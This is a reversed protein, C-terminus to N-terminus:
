RCQSPNKGLHRLFATSMRSSSVFGAERAITSVKVDTTSLMQQAHAVRLREIEEAMSRGVHEHFLRYLSRLSVGASKAIAKAQLNERFHEHIHRLAAAVAPNEIMLIDTSRRVVLGRPPVRIPSAPPKEGHMLRDLLAAGQYGQGRHNSDVSTLPVEGLEAAIPDNDVGVIAVDDPVRLGVRGCAMCVDNATVDFQCMVGFPRPLKMLERAIWDLRRRLTRANGFAAVASLHIFDRRASEVTRRFGDRREQEVVASSTQLYVLRRFGRSILHEAALRGITENDPLVRPLQFEPLDGNLDVVPVNAKAVIQRTIFHNPYSLLTM